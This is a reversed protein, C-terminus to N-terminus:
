GNIRLKLDGPNVTTAAGILTKGLQTQGHASMGFDDLPM